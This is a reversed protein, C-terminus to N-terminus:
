VVSGPLISQDYHAPMDAEMESLNPEDIAYLKAKVTGLMPAVFNFFTLSSKPFLYCWHVLHLLFKLIRLRRCLHSLDLIQIRICFEIDYPFPCMLGVSLQTGHTTNHIVPPAVMIRAMRPALISYFCLLKEINFTRSVIFQRISVNETKSKKTILCFYIM